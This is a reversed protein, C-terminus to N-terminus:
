VRERCSARGIEKMDLDSFVEYAKDINNLNFYCHGTKIKTANDLPIGDAIMQNYFQLASFYEGRAYLANAKRLLPSQAWVLVSSMLFLSVFIFKMIPRM